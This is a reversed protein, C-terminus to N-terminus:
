IEPTDMGLIRASTVGLRDGRSPEAHTAELCRSGSGPAVSGGRAGEVGVIEVGGGVRPYPYLVM